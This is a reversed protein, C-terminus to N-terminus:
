RRQEIAACKAERPLAGCVRRHRTMQACRIARCLLERRARDLLCEGAVAPRTAPAVADVVIVVIVAGGMFHQAAVRASRAQLEAPWESLADAERAAVHEYQGRAGRVLQDRRTFIEADHARVFASAAVVHLQPIGCM